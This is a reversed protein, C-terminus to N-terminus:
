KFQIINETKIRGQFSYFIFLRIRYKTVNKNYLLINM